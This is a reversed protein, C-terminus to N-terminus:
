LINIFVVGSGECIKSNAFVYLFLRNAVDNKPSAALAINKIENTKNTTNILVSPHMNQKASRKTRKGADGNTIVKKAIINALLVGEFFDFPKLMASIMRFIQVIIMITVFTDINKLRWEGKLAFSTMNNPKMIVMHIEKPNNIALM